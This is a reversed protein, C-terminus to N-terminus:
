PVMHRPTPHFYLKKKGLLCRFQTMFDFKIITSLPKKRKIMDCIQPAWRGLNSCKGLHILTAKPLEAMLRDKTAHKGVVATTNLYKAVKFAEQQAFHLEGQSPQWVQFSLFVISISLHM